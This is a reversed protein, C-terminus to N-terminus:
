INALLTNFVSQSVHFFAFQRRGLSRCVCISGSFNSHTHTNIYSIFGSIEPNDAIITATITSTILRLTHLNLYDWFVKKLCESLPKAGKASFMALMTFVCYPQHLGEGLAVVQLGRLETWQQPSCVEEPVHVRDKPECDEQKGLFEQEKQGRTAQWM